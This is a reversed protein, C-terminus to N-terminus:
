STVNKIGDPGSLPEDNGAHRFKWRVADIELRSRM